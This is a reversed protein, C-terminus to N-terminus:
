LLLMLYKQNITDIDVFSNNELCFLEGVMPLKNDKSNTIVSELFCINKEKSDDFYKNINCFKDKVIKIEKNNINKCQSYSDESNLNHFDIYEYEGLNDCLHHEEGEYGSNERGYEDKLRVLDNKDPPTEIEMVFAGEKSLAKTSHFVGKEVVLGDMEKLFFQTGLTSSLVNGSLVALSTKKNPHCHMSTACEHRLFLIWIAVYKNEFMLYEYGWPKKVIKGKYDLNVGQELEATRKLSLNHLDFESRFVKKIM